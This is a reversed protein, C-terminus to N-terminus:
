TPENLLKRRFHEASGLYDEPAAFRVLDRPLVDRAAHHAALAHAFTQDGRQAAALADAILARAADRGLAPALLMMAREAFVADRTAAINARMRAHDVGLSEVSAAISALAAGTAQVVDVLTVCETNWTGAGREHEQGMAGLFTAVLGPVRAVAGLAAAAAAPNRKHPMTSSGGGAESVEGVEFQMLLTVDRAIKGLTGCYVGCAAVYSALRDRCTHWPAGPDALQLERALEAAVMPGAAGLPALTGAAGGCQVMMTQAAAARMQAGARAAGAFWTAAKLGFTIPVAPQLLTRGLMVTNAHQDSLARLANLLRLHDTQILPLARGLCLVLTTDMLDQSTAGWHVFVAAARDVVTVRAVLADVFPIAITASHRGAQAIAGTDFADVMGARAIADAASTPILGLRAQARALAVEFQLMAGLVSRDSFIEALAETTVLSEALRATM